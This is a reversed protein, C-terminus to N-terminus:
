SRLLKRIQAAQPSEPALELYARWEEQAAQREDREWHIIGLNYRAEPTNPRLFLARRYSAIAEDYEKAAYHLYALGMYTDPFYPDLVLAKHYLVFAADEEHVQALLSGINYHLWEMDSGLALAGRWAKQAEPIKKREWFWKGRFYPEHVNALRTPYDSFRGQFIARRWVLPWPNLGCPKGSHYVMGDLHAPGPLFGPDFAVAHFESPWGPFERQSRFMTRSRAYVTVDPRRNEVLLGYALASGPEDFLKQDLVTFTGLPLEHLLNRGLDWVAFDNRFSVRGLSLVSMVVLVVALSRRLWPKPVWAMGWALVVAVFLNPLWHFRELRWLSLANPALNAYLVFLPGTFLFFVWFPFASRRLAWLGPIMLVLAWGFQRWLTLGYFRLTDGTTIWSRFSLATPHLQLSGFSRRTFVNWFKEWSDPDGFNMSPDLRARLPLAGYVSLGLVLFFLVMGWVRADGWGDKEKRWLWLALGPLLFVLTHHNGLGLGFLFAGLFFWPSKLVGERSAVSLLALAFGGNWLFVEPVLAQEQFIPTAGLAAAAALAAASSGTHNKLFLFLAALFFGAACATVSHIRYAPNGWPILEGAVRATLTYFPYGPAHPIGM